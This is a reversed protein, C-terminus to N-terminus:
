TTAPGDGRAARKSELVREISDTKVSGIREPRDKGDGAANPQTNNRKNGDKIDNETYLLEPNVEKYNKHRPLWQRLHRLYGNTGNMPSELSGDAIKYRTFLDVWKKLHIEDWIFLVGWSKMHEDKTQKYYSNYLFNLACVDIPYVGKSNGDLKPYNSRSYVITEEPLFKPINGTNGIEEPIVDSNNANRGSSVITEEPVKREEELISNSLSKTNITTSLSVQTIASPFSHNRGSTDITEETPFRKNDKDSTNIATSLSNNDPKKQFKGSNRRSSVPTGDRLFENKDSNIFYAEEIKPKDRRIQKSIHLWKQQIGRSTLINHKIYMEMNLIGAELIANLFPRLFLPNMGNRIQECMKSEQEEDWPLFYGRAFIASFFRMVFKDMLLRDALNRGSPDIVDEADRMKKSDFLTSYLPYYSLGTKKPRGGKNKEISM